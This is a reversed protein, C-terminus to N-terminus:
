RRCGPRRRRCGAPAAPSSSPRARAGVPLGVRRGLDGPPQAVDRAAVARGAAAHPWECDDVPVSRASSRSIASARRSRPFGWLRPVCFCDRPGSGPDAARPPRPRAHSPSSTSSCRASTSRATATPRGASWTRRCRRRRSSSRARGARPVGRGAVVAAVARDRPLHPDARAGPAQDRRAAPDARRPLAAPRDRRHPVAARRDPDLVLAATDLCADLTM